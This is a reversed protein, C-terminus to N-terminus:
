RGTILRNEEGVWPENKGRYKRVGNKKKSARGLRGEFWNHPCFNEPDFWDLIPEPKRKEGGFQTKSAGGKNPNTQGLSFLGKLNPM